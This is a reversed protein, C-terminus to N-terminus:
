FQNRMSSPTSDARSLWYTAAAPDRPLRTSLGRRLLRMTVGFPTMVLYFLIGMVVPNIVHHLILGIRQWLRSLPALVAPAMLAFVLFMAAVVLSWVRLPRGDWLPLVGVISFVAAFVLGFARPSGEVVEDDHFRDHTNSSSTM